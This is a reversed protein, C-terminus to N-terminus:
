TLIWRLCYDKLNKKLVEIDSSMDPNVILAIEYNQM